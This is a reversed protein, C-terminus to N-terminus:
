NSDDYKPINLFDIYISITLNFEEILYDFKYSLCGLDFAVIRRIKDFGSGGEIDTNEYDNSSNNWKNKVVELKQRLEKKDVLESFNNKYSIKLYDDDDLSSHIEIQLDNPNLKSHLVINDLLIRSLYIIHITGVMPIYTDETIIPNIKFNPHITNTIQVSTQILVKLDLILDKSSSSLYFWESISRLENQLRTGCLSISNILEPHSGTGVIEKIESNFKQLIKNYSNKLEENIYVRINTLLKETFRELYEFVFSLFLNHDKINERTYTFLYALEQNSISYDFLAKPKKNYKETKVQILEKIVFETYEDIARSFNKIANQIKIRKENLPLSQNWVENELYNNDKDKQSIINESEFISRIHNLLTGHRIRTSLYGDLGCEKSLIYKDRIEIFIFKFSIFAPDSTYVVRPMLDNPDDISFDKLLDMSTDIGKLEKIKSYTEIERYRNFAEKINNTEINRLHTVNVTIRGKNVERIAKRINSNQNLEAIEKIYSEENLIDNVILRNLINLRENEIDDTGNFHYSHHMIEITCVERLFFIIRADYNEIKDLCESPRTLNQSELYTDYAVYQEYSDNTAIRYFIPLEVLNKVKEIEGDHLSTLLKSKDLRKTIEKKNLYNEVFLCCAEKNFNLKVYCRYLNVLIEENFIENETKNIYYKWFHEKAEDYKGAKIIARGFYIERKSLPLNTHDKFYDYNGIIINYIIDTSITLLPERKLYSVYLSLNDKSIYYLLRPNKIQSNIVYLLTFHKNGNNILTASKILSLFQKAWNTSSFTTSIKHGLDITQEFDKKNSYINILISIISNITKPIDDNNFEQNLEIISKCYIEYLEIVNPYKLILRIGNEICYEFQALSYKDLYEYVEQNCKIEVIDSPSLINLLQSIQIDSPFLESLKRTLLTLNYRHEQSGSILMETLVNKLLLYRDILSSASEIYLFYAFYKYHTFGIYNLKFCLYEYLEKELLNENVQNNFINLYRFYSIKSEARKSLNETLFLIFPDSIKTSLESVENWNAKVGEKLEKLIIQNEILWISKGSIDSIKKLLTEAQEYEGLLVKCDFLDKLEIFNEIIDKNQEFTLLYFSAEGIFVGSFASTRSRRIDSYEKPVNNSSFLSKVFPHSSIHRYVKKIKDYDSEQKLRGLLQYKDMRPHFLLKRYEESNM